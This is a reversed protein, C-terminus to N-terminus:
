EERDRVSIINKKERYPWGRSRCEKGVRREESRVSWAKDTMGNIRGRCRVVQVLLSIEHAFASALRRGVVVRRAPPQDGPDDQVLDSSCVDSSWDCLSRTHRRRSSFFFFFLIVIDLIIIKIRRFEIDYVSLDHDRNQFYM